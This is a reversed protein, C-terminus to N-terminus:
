SLIFRNDLQEQTDNWFILRQDYVIEVGNRHLKRMHNNYAAFNCTLGNRGDNTYKSCLKQFICTKCHNEKPIATTKPTVGYLKELETIVMTIEDYNKAPEKALHVLKELLITEQDQKKDNRRM